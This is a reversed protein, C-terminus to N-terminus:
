YEYEGMGREPTLSYNMHSRSPDIDKNRDNQILRNCHRIQNVVASDTFKEISAM